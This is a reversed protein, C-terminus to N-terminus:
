ARICRNLLKHIEYKLFAFPPTIMLIAILCSNMDVKLLIFLFSMIFFLSCKSTMGLPPILVPDWSRCLDVRKLVTTLNM